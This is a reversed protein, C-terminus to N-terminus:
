CQVMTFASQQSMWQIKVCKVNDRDPVNRIHLDSYLVVNSWMTQTQSFVFGLEDVNEISVYYPRDITM